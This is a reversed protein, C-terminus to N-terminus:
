SCILQLCPSAVGMDHTEESAWALYGYYRGDSTVPSGEFGYGARVTSHAQAQARVQQIVEAPPGSCTGGKSLCLAVVGAVHPSAMSTGSYSGTGGGPLTSLVCAGPGAIVHHAGDGYTFNSFFAVEDDPIAYDPSLECAPGMAGTQGDTDTMATVTLVEPYRAPVTTNIDDSWNGAAVVYTVGAEATSNCIALHLPDSVGYGCAPDALSPAGGGLSMNAVKIDVTEANQTVWDVGCIVSSWTGSGTDGLVKVAHVRTGPAVGVVGFGNNEAGVTGAVHTGHGYVDTAPMGDSICNTGHVADLDPHALDIGTDLIAVDVDASPHVWKHAGRQIVAEIRRVGAPVLEGPSVRVSHSTAAVEQDLQTFVVRPDGEITELHEAPIVGAYGKLAATYTFRVEVEFRQEHEAAVIAPTTVWDALVVIRSQEDATSGQAISAAGTTTSVGSAVLLAATLFRRVSAKLVSGEKRVWGSLGVKLV